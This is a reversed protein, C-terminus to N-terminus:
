CFRDQVRAACFRRQWHSDTVEAGTPPRSANTSPRPEHDAGHVYSWVAGSPSRGLPGHGAGSGFSSYDTQFNFPFELLPEFSGHRQFVFRGTNAWSHNVLLDLDREDALRQMAATFKQQTNM